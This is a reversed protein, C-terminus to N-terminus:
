VFSVKNPVYETSSTSGLEIARAVMAARSNVELKGFVRRLYTGVTWPSIDLASAIARNTLGRGVMQVIELERPSLQLDIACAHRRCRSVTWHYGGLDLDILPQGTVDLDPYQALLSAALQLSAELTVSLPPNRPDVEDALVSQVANLSRPNTPQIAM